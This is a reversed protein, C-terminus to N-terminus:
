EANGISISHRINKNLATGSPSPGETFLDGGSYATAIRLHVVLLGTVQPAVDLWPISVIVLFDAALDQLM